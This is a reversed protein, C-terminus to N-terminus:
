QQILEHEPKKFSEASTINLSRSLHFFHGASETESAQSQKPIEDLM